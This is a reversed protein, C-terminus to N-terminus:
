RLTSSCTRLSSTTPCPRRQQCEEHLYRVGRAVGVVIDRLAPLTAVSRGLLYADLAGGEMHVLEYVLARVADDFFLCVLNVDHTRGITRPM